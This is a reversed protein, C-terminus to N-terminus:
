TNVVRQKSVVFYSIMLIIVVGIAHADDICLSARYKDALQRLKPM